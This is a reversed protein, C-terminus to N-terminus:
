MTCLIVISGIGIFAGTTVYVITAGLNLHKGTPGNWSPPLALAVETAPVTVNAPSAKCAKVYAACLTLVTGFFVLYYHVQLLLRLDLGPTRCGVIKKSSPRLTANNVNPLPLLRITAASVPIM